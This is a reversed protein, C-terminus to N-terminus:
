LVKFQLDEQVALCSPLSPSSASPLLWDLKFIDGLSVGWIDHHLLYPNVKESTKKLELPFSSASNGQFFYYQEEWGVRNPPSILTSASSSSLDSRIDLDWPWLTTPGLLWWKPFAFNYLFIMLSFTTVHLCVAQLSSWVISHQWNFPQQCGKRKWQIQLCAINWSQNKWGQWCSLLVMYM